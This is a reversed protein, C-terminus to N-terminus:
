DTISIFWMLQNELILSFKCDQSLGMQWLMNDKKYM